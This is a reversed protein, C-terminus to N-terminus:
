QGTVARGPLAVGEISPASLAAAISRAPPMHGARSRPSAHRSRRAAARHAPRPSGATVRSPAGHRGPRRALPRQRDPPGRGCGVLARPDVAHRHRRGRRGDLRRRPRRPRRRRRLGPGDEARLRRRPAAARGSRRRDVLGASSASAPSTTSRWAPTAPTNPPSPRRDGRQACRVRAFWRHRRRPVQRAARGLAVGHPRAVPPATSM